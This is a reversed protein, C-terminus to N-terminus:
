KLGPRASNNRIETLASAIEQLAQDHLKSKVEYNFDSAALSLSTLANRLEVLESSLRSMIQIERKNPPLSEM